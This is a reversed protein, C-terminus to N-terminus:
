RKLEAANKRLLFTRQLSNNSTKILEKELELDIRM